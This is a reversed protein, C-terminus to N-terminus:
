VLMLTKDRYKMLISKNDKIVTLGDMTIKNNDFFTNLCDILHKLGKIKHYFSSNFFCKLYSLM